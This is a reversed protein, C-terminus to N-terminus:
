GPLESPLFDTQLAPSGPEVGPNPLDGQLLFPCGVGTNKGPSNWPCLLRASSDMPDWSDSLVSHSVCSVLVPVPNNVLSWATDKQKRNWARFFSNLPGPSWRLGTRASRARFETSLAQLFSLPLLLGGGSLPVKFITDLNSM